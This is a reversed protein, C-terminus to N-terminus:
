FRYLRELSYMAVCTNLVIDAYVKTAATFVAVEYEGAAMGRSLESIFEDLGPRKFVFIQEAEAGTEAPLHAAFSAFWKGLNPALSPHVGHRPFVSHILCEDMDLVIFLREDHRSRARLLAVSAAASTSSSATQPALTAAAPILGASAAALARPTQIHRWLQQVRHM